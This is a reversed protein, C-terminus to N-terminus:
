TLKNDIFFIKYVKERKSNKESDRKKPFRLPSKIM